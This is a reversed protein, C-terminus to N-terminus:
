SVCLPCIRPKIKCSGFQRFVQKMSYPLLDYLDTLKYAVIMKKIEEEDLLMVNKVITYDYAEYPFLLNLTKNYKKWNVLEYLWITGNYHNFEATRQFFGRISENELSNPINLLHHKIM